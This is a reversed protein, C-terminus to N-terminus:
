FWPYIFSFSSCMWRVDMKELNKGTKTPQFNSKFISTFPHQWFWPFIYSFSSRMCKVDMKQLNKSPKTPQFNSKFLSTSHIYFPHPSWPKSPIAPFHINKSAPELCTPFGHTKLNRNVCQAFGQYISQVYKPACFDFFM